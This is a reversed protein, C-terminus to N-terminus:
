FSSKRDGDNAGRWKIVRGERAHADDKFYVFALSSRMVSGSMYKIISFLM